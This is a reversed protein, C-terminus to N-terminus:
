KKTTIKDNKFILIFISLYRVSASSDQNLDYHSVVTFALKTEHDFKWPRDIAAKVTYRIRGFDSEYSSPLNPPIVCNFPYTHTGAPLEIEDGLFIQFFIKKSNYKNHTKLFEM